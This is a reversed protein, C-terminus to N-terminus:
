KQCTSKKQANLEEEHESIYSDIMHWGADIMADTFFHHECERRILAIAEETAPFGREQLRDHIDNNHWRVVGFWEGDDPKIPDDEVWINRLPVIKRCSGGEQYCHVTDSENKRLVPNQSVCASCHTGALCLVKHAM